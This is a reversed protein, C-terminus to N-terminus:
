NRNRRRSRQREMAQKYAEGEVPHPSYGGSRNASLAPTPAASGQPETSQAARVVPNLTAYKDAWEAIGEPDTRDCLSFAEDTLQPHKRQAELRAIRAHADALQRTAETLKQYNDSARQENKRSMAKWKSLEDDRRGDPAPETRPEQQPQDGTAPQETEKEPVEITTDM